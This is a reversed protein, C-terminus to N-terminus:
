TSKNPKFTAMIADATAEAHSGYDEGYTIIDAITYRM